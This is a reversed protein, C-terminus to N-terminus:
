KARRGAPFPEVLKSAESGSGTPMVVSFTYETNRPGPDGPLQHVFNVKAKGRVVTLWKLTAVGLSYSALHMPKGQVLSVIAVELVANPDEGIKLVTVADEVDDGTVDGYVTAEAQLAVSRLAPEQVPLIAYGERLAVSFPKGAASLAARVSPDTLVYTLNRLVALNIAHPTSPAPTPDSATQSPQRGCSICVVTSAMILAVSAFRRM